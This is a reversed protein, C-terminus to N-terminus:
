EIVLDNAAEVVRDRTAGLRTAVTM